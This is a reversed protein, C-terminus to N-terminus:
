RKSAAVESLPVENEPGRKRARCGTNSGSLTRNEDVRTQTTSGKIKSVMKQMVWQLDDLMEMLSGSVRSADVAPVSFDAWWATCLIVLFIGNKGGKCLDNWGDGSLTESRILRQNPEGPLRWTPQL